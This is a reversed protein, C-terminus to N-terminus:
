SILSLTRKWFLGPGEVPDSDEGGETVERVGLSDTAM